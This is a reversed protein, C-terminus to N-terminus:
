VTDFAAAGAVGRVCGERGGLGVDQAGAARRAAGSVCRPRLAGLARLLFINKSNKNVEKVVSINLSEIEKSLFNYTEHLYAILVNM